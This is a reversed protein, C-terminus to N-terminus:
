NCGCAIRVEKLLVSAALAIVFLIASCALGSGLTPFKEWVMGYAQLSESVMGQALPGV